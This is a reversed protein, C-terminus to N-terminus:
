DRDTLREPFVTRCLILSECVSESLSSLLSVLVTDIPEMDRVENEKEADCVEDIDRESTSIVPVTETESVCLKLEVKPEGEDGIVAVHVPDGVYVRLWTGDREKEMEGDGVTVCDGDIVGV